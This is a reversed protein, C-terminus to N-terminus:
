EIYKEIYNCKWEMCVPVSINRRVQIVCVVKLIVLTELIRRTLPGVMVIDDSDNGLISVPRLIKCKRLHNWHAIM